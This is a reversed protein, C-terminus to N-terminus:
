TDVMIAVGGPGYGEYRIEEFANADAGEGSAKKIARELNDKPVSNKNCKELALRLRPNSEPDPGGERVAVTVERVLRTFLKGRKSDQAKKRHQINAWKSHGAM